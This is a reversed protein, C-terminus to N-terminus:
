SCLKFCDVVAVVCRHRRNLVLRCIYEKPMNPLQKSYIQKLGMLYIMNHPQGDNKAYKFSIEGDAEM